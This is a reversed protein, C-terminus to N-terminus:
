RLGAAKVPSWPSSSKGQGKVHFGFLCDTFVIGYLGEPVPLECEPQPGKAKNSKEAEHCGNGPGKEHSPTADHKQM